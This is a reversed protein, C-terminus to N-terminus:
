YRKVSMCTEVFQLTYFIFRWSASAGLYDPNRFEACPRLAARQWIM